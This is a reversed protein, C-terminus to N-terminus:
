YGYVRNLHQEEWSVPEQEDDVYHLVGKIYIEGGDNLAAEAEQAATAEGILYGNINYVFM